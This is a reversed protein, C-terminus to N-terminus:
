DDDEDEDRGVTRRIQRLIEEEDEFEEVGPMVYGPEIYDEDDEDATTAADRAAVNKLMEDTEEEPELDNLLDDYNDTSEEDDDIDYGLTDNIDYDQNDSQDAKDSSSQKADIPEPESSLKELPSKQSPELSNAADIAAQIVNPNKVSNALDNTLAEEEALKNQRQRKYFSTNSYKTLIADIEEEVFSDTIYYDPRFASGSNLLIDSIEEGMVRSWIDTNIAMMAARWRLLKIRDNNDLVRKIPLEVGYNAHMARIDSEDLDEFDVKLKGDETKSYKIKQDIVRQDYEKYAHFIAFRHDKEAKKELMEGHVQLKINSSNKFREARKVEAEKKLELFTRYQKGTLLEQVFGGQRWCDKKPCPIIKGKSFKKM